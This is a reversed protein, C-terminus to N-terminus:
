KQEGIGFWEMYQTRIASIKALLQQVAQVRSQMKYSLVSDKQIQASYAQIQTKVLDLEASSLEVDDLNLRGIVRNYLRTLDTEDLGTINGTPTTMGSSDTILKSLAASFQGLLVSIACYMALPYVFRDNWTLRGGSVSYVIGRYTYNKTEDFPSIHLLNGVKYFYTTNGYDNLLSYRNSIHQTNECEIARDGNCYVDITPPIYHLTVPTSAITTETNLDKLLTPNSLELKRVVDEMGAIITSDPVQTGSEQLLSDIYSTIVVKTAM